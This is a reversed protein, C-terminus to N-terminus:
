GDKPFRRIYIDQQPFPITIDHQKFQKV